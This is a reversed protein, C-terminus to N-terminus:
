VRSRTRGMVFAITMATLVMGSIIPLDGGDDATTAAALDTGVEGAPTMVTVTGVMEPHLACLYGYEGPEDFRHTYRDGTALVESGFAGDDTSSVTHPLEGRNIWTIPTGIPVTMEAPSFGLDLIDLTRAAVASGDERGGSPGGRAPADPDVPDAMPDSVAPETGSNAGPDADPPSTSTGSSGAGVVVQGAM